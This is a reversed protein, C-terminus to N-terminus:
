VVPQCRRSSSAESNWEKKISRQACLTPAAVLFVCPWLRAFSSAQCRTLARLRLSRSRHVTPRGCARLLRSEIEYPSRVRPGVTVALFRLTEGNTRSALRAPINERGTLPCALLAPKEVIEHNKTGDTAISYHRWSRESTTQPSGTSGNRLLLLWPRTQSCASQIGPPELVGSNTLTM